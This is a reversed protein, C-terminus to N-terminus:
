TTSCHPMIIGLPRLIKIFFWMVPSNKRPYSIYCELSDVTSLPIPATAYTCATPVTHTTAKQNTCSFM